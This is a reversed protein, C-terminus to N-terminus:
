AACDDCHRTEETAEGGVILPENGKSPNDTESHTFFGGEERSEDGKAPANITGKSMSASNM